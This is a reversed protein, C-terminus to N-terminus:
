QIPIVRRATRDTTGLRRRIALDVEIALPTKSAATPDRDVALTRWWAHAAAINWGDDPRAAQLSRAVEKVSAPRATPDKALCALVLADIAPSVEPATPLCDLHQQIVATPTSGEFVMRGTMLFYAVVGLAYIDAAPTAGGGHVLEPALYSPTGAIVGPDRDLLLGIDLVKAVDPIGGRVCVMINSAKLDAHAIGHRHAEHLAGCAQVLIDVARSAPLKGHNRVLVELDIGDLHEMVYYFVGDPSHGYDLVAATNPHTLKSMRQVATEFRGLRSTAKADPRLLKIATPRRLLAHTAEYVDDMGNSRIKRGLTYQGLRAHARVRRRLGYIFRSGAAAISVATVSYLTACIFYAVGPIEQTTWLALGAAAIVLPAIALASVTATRRGTSPVVLARTFVLFCAYILCTYASEARDYALLATAGFVVGSSVTFALDVRSLIAVSLQRRILFGRWCVAMAILGFMGTCLIWSYLRPKIEPYSAYLVVELGRLTVFAWFLVRAYVATRNQLFARADEDGSSGLALMKRSLASELTV